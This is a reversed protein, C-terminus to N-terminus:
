IVFGLAGLTQAVSRKRYAPMSKKGALWSQLKIITINLRSQFLLVKTGGLNGRGTNVWGSHTHGLGIGTCGKGSTIRDSNIFTWQTAFFHFPYIQQGLPFSIMLCSMTTQTHHFPSNAPFHVSPLDYHDRASLRNASWGNDEKLWVFYTRGNCVISSGTYLLGWRRSQKQSASWNIMRPGNSFREPCVTLVWTTQTDVPTPSHMSDVSYKHKKEWSSDHRWVALFHYCGGLSSM